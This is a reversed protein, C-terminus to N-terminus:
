SILFDFLSCVLAEEVFFLKRVLIKKRPFEALEVQLAM